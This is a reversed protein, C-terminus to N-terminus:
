KARRRLTRIFAARAVDMLPSLNKKQQRGPTVARVASRLAADIDRTPYEGENMRADIVAQVAATFAQLPDTRTAM